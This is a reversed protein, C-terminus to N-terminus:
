RSASPELQPQTIHIPFGKRMARLPVELLAEKLLRAAEPKLTESREVYACLRRALTGIEFLSSILIVQDFCAGFGCPSSSWPAGRSTAASPRAASRAL